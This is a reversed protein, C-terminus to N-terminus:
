LGKIENNYLHMTPNIKVTKTKELAHDDMIKHLTTNYQAAMMEMDCPNEDCTPETMAYFCSQEIDNKFIGIDIQKYKQYMITEM